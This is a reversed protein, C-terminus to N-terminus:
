HLPVPLKALWIIESENELKPAVLMLGFHISQKCKPINVKSANDKDKSEFPRIAKKRM